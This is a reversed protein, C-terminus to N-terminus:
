RDNKDGFPRLRLFVSVGIPHSGYIPKLVDPVGYTTVQAGLATRLHSIVDVDHDYGFTYAQVHALPEEQFNPPLPNTGNLLENTRSANEMRLWAYNSTKFRLLSELLYSNQKGNDELARTHGWVATNAWNGKSFKRNYMVSATTRAQDEQPYLAEPSHIRAYSYQGSWNKGPQVTLRTSWSDIAGYNVDWRFEDPERGHFGSAEAKVGINGFTHAVGVTLVDAAIHTSDEQHHGLTGVPNELASARHPYATPGIAPDGMPAAYFSLLTKSGLKLDYLAAIEMLFDHPHQGDAIPKGFATEGQQFLLPYQRGTVTAPELSFMARLTFEGPGLNRQAMPMFWNTSYLKDGGRPSTQQTDTLFGNGHFMFMWKGRMSMLMPTPTSNPEATTGSSSHHLIQQLFNQPRMNQMLEMMDHDMAPATTDPCMKMGPMNEVCPSPTATPLNANQPFVAPAALLFVSFVFIVPHM